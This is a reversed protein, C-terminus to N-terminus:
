IPPSPVYVRVIVSLSPYLRFTEKVVVGDLFLLNMLDEYLLEAFSIESTNEHHLLPGWPGLLLLVEQM